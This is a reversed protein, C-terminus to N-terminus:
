GINKISRAVVFAAICFVAIAVVLIVMLTGPNSVLIVPAVSLMLPQVVISILSGIPIAMSLWVLSKSKPDAVRLLMYGTAVVGNSTGYFFIAPGFWDKQPFWKKALFFCFSANLPLIVITMVLIEKANAAIVDLNTNVISSVILLEMATSTIHKMGDPDAIKKIGTKRFLIGALVSVLAVCAISNLKNLIPLMSCLQTLGMAVLFIVMVLGLQVSLPELASANSVSRIIGERKEPPIYGSM